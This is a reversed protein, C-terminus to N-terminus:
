QFPVPAPVQDLIAPTLTKIWTISEMGEPTTVMAGPFVVMDTMVPFPYRDSHISTGMIMNEVGQGDNRITLESTLTPFTLGHFARALEADTPWAGNKAAIAREYAARMGFIAQAMHHTSYIPMSNFRARYAETFDNLLTANGPNPRLFWHDGRAGIMVGPPLAKGVRELSSEALPLVMKTREFLKREAAQRVFTDLDGGWNASFVVDPRLALLRTIETSYDTAGFKPFLEASIRVGPKLTELGTKFLEWSDRGWAYDQNVVAISRFDPNRKLLYLLPALVEPTANGQTRVAYEHQTGEFIRQTGCDWLITPKKLEEALPSVALCTGSSIGFMLVDVRENQILRRYESVIHEVGPGEDVFIPRLPVGAIGGAKNIQDILLEAANRAPVGFVSASGSLFTAIGIRIETPKQQAFGPRALVAMSGAAALAARRTLM